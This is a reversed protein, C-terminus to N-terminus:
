KAGKKKGSDVGADFGSGQGNPYIVPPPPLKLAMDIAGMGAEAGGDPTAVPTAAAAEPAAGDLMILPVLSGNPGSVLTADPDPQGDFNKDQDITLKDGDWVWWQDVKGDGNTDRERKTRKGTAPDFTDTTDVKRQGTTDVERRVLKGGDYYEIASVADGTEYSAERRRLAGQADYYSIIEAKGDHNLDAVRCLERGTGKDLIRRIDPKGDNNIDVTEVRGQSDECPEHKLPPATAVESAPTKDPTAKDSGGCGWLVYSPFAAAGALVFAWRFRFASHVM